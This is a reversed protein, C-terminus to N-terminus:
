IRVRSSGDRPIAALGSSTGLRDPSEGAHDFAFPGGALTAPPEAQPSRPPRSEQGDCRQHWLRDRDGQQLVRPCRPLHNCARSADAARVGGLRRPRGFFEAARKAAIAAGRVESRRVTACWAARRPVLNSGRSDRWEKGGVSSRLGSSGRLGGQLFPFTDRASEGRRGLGLRRATGGSEHRGGPSDGHLRRRHVRGACHGRLREASTVTGRSSVAGRRAPHRQKRAGRPVFGGSAGDIRPGLSQRCPLGSAFGLREDRLQAGGSGASSFARRRRAVPGCARLRFTARGSASRLSLHFRGDQRDRCELCGGNFGDREVLVGM